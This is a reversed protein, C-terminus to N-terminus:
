PAAGEIINFYRDRVKVVPESMEKGSDLGEITHATKTLIPRFTVM